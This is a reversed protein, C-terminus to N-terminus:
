NNIIGKLDLSLKSIDKMSNYISDINTNQEEIIALMEETSTSHENSISSISETEGRINNITSTTEKVAELEKAIYEDIERFNQEINGFNSSVKSVIKEGTEAASIGSQADSLVLQTKAKIDVILKNILKATEASQDALKRVEDAVVAFGKGHEGARAAEIAANLSLLNTQEAIETIGDLFSNVEDISKHLDSVTLFSKKVVDNIIGMQKSMESISESGETVIKTTNRSVQSMQNSIDLTKTISSDATIIANGIDYISETQEAIGAAVEKVTMNIGGGSEKLSQLNLNCNDIDENLLASNREIKNMTDQLQKLLTVTKIERSESSKILQSSWKTVFFLILFIINTIIFFPIIIIPPLKKQLIALAFFLIDSVVIYFALYKHNLFVCMMCGCLIFIAIGIEPLTSKSNDLFSILDNIMFTICIATGSRLFLKM